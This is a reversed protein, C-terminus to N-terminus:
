SYRGNRINEVADDYTLASSKAKDVLNGSIEFTNIDNSFSHLYIRKIGYESVIRYKEKIPSGGFAAEREVFVVKVRATDVFNHKTTKEVTIKM